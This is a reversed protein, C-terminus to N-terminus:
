TAFIVAEAADALAEQRRGGAAPPASAALAGAPGGLAEAATRVDVATPGTLSLPGAVAVVAHTATRAAVARALRDGFHDPSM